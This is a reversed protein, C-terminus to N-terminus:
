AHGQEEEGGSCEEWFAQFGHSFDDLAAIGGRMERVTENSLDSTSALIAVRGDIVRQVVQRVATVQDPLLSGIADKVAEPSSARYREGIRKWFRRQWLNM